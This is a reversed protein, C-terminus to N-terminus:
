DPALVAALGSFGPMPQGEAAVIWPWEQGEPAGARPGQMQANQTGKGM